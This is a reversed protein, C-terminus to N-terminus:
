YKLAENLVREFSGDHRMDAMTQNFRALLAGQKASKNFALHGSTSALPVKAAEVQPYSGSRLMAEGSQEIALVADLRGVSLKVFNTADGSVEEAVILGKKRAEAM